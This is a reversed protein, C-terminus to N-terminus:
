SLEFDGYIDITLDRNQLYEGPTRGICQKLHRILHPQDSFGFRSTVDLWDINSEGQKYLYELMKELRMMSQCQKLTLGTVRLFSRAVTRQSRHLVAGLQTVAMTSLLPLIQLTLESHKDERGKSLCPALMQDLSDRTNIANEADNILTDGACFGTNGIIANIDVCAITDLTLEFDSLEIAYLAGIKFKVGVICFPESHDMVFTNKHPFICHSGHGKQLIEDQQYHYKHDSSAIILHAAPDPNLKPQMNVLDSPEKELFWYCEVYKAVIVDKPLIKWSKM